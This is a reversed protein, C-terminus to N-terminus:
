FSRKNIIVKAGPVVIDKQTLVQGENKWPGAVSPASYCNVGQTEYKHPDHSDDLKKSEGFWYWRSDTPSQLMGAAHAEIRKGDTDNWHRNPYVVHQQQPPPPPPPLEDDDLKNHLRSHSSSRSKKVVVSLNHLSCGAFARQLGTPSGEAKRQVVFTSQQVSVNGKSLVVSPVGGSGINDSSFVAGNFLTTSRSDDYLVAGSKSATNGAFSTDTVYFTSWQNALAAGSGNVWNGEFSSNEITVNQTADKGKVSWAWVAQANGSFNCRRVVLGGRDTFIAGGHGAKDGAHCHPCDGAWCGNFVSDAVDISGWMFTYLAGGQKASCNVFRSHHATVVGMYNMVAGGHDLARSHEFSCNTISVHGRSNFIGGGGVWDHVGGHGAVWATNRAFTCTEYTQSGTAWIAGGSYGDNDHFVMRSCNLQKGGFTLAGAQSKGHSWNGGSIAFGQLTLNRSSAVLVTGNGSGRVACGAAVSDSAAGGGDDCVIAMESGTLTLPQTTSHEGLFSIRSRPFSNATSVAAELSRCTWSLGGAERACGAGSSDAVRIHVATTDGDSAAVVAGALLTAAAAALALILIPQSPTVTPGRSRM